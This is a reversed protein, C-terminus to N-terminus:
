KLHRVDRGEYLYVVEEAINTAHDAIRELSKAITMLHLARTITSQDAVMTNVLAQAIEKNLADVEKDRPVVALAKGSDGNVFGELADKLLQLAITALRPIDISIDLPPEACLKKVRRAIKCAEDGVRELDHSAKMAVTIFRLHTALPAKALLKISLDDVEIEFRDLVEDDADVQRALAADRDILAQVARSVASEAHRGMSLLKEKLEDLEHQFHLSM